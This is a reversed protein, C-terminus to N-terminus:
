SRHNNTYNKNNLKTLYEEVSYIPITKLIEKKNSIVNGADLNKLTWQSDQINGNTKKHARAVSWMAEYLNGNNGTFTLKVWAEGTNRRMLQEANNLKLDKENPVDGKMQTNKLRPTTAFLALCIADLITTKGSGTKGTILFVESSALPQALFDIEADEISAINHINLKQLRM